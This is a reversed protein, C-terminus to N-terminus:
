GFQKGQTLRATDLGPFGNPLPIDNYMRSRWSLNGGWACSKWHSQFHYSNSLKLLHEPTDTDFKNERRLPGPRGPGGRLM